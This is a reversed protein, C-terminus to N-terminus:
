IGLTWFVLTFLIGAFLLKFISVSKEGFCWVLVKQLAFLFFYVFKCTAYYIALSFTVAAMLEWVKSKSVGLSLRAFFEGAHPPLGDWFFLKYLVFIAVAHSAIAILHGVFGTADDACHAQQPHIDNASYKRDAAPVKEDLDFLRPRYESLPPQRYQDLEGGAKMAGNIDDANLEKLFFLVDNADRLFADLDDLKYGAEHVLKNRVTAIRRIQKSHKAPVFSEVSSLKEHLGRGEASLKNELLTEINKCCDIVTELNSM